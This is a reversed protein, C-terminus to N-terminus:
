VLSGSLLHKQLVYRLHFNGSLAVGDLRELCFVEIPILRCNVVSAQSRLYAWRSKDQDTYVRRLM